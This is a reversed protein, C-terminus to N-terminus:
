ARRKKKKSSNGIYINMNTKGMWHRVFSCKALFTKIYWIHIVIVNVCSSLNTVKEFRFHIGLLEGFTETFAECRLLSISWLVYISCIINQLFFINIISGIWKWFSKCKPSFFVQIHTAFCVEVVYNWYYYQKLYILRM